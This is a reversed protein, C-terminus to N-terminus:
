LKERIEFRTGRSLRDLAIAPLLGLATSALVLLVRLVLSGLGASIAYGALFFVVPLLYVVAAAGLVAGDRSYLLVTDGEKVGVLDEAVARVVQGGAGCGPCTACDHSCASQRRVAVEARGDRLLKEVTAVQTM